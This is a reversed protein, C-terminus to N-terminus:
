GQCQIFIPGKRKFHRERTLEGRWHTHRLCCGYSSYLTLRGYYSYFNVWRCPYNGHVHFHGPRFGQNYLDNSVLM